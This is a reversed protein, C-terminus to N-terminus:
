LFFCLSLLAELLFFFCYLAVTSGQECLTVPMAKLEVVVLVRFNIILVTAISRVKFGLFGNLDCRVRIAVSSIPRRSAFSTVM